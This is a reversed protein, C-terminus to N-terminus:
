NVIMAEIEIQGMVKAVSIRHHGDRVYYDDGAQVLEVPPLAIGQRRAAAIGVWREQLHSKLPLFGADFDESRGESGSIRSLPIQVTRTSLHGNSDFSRRELSKLSSSRGFLRDAFRGRRAVALAKEFRKAAIQRANQAAERGTGFHELTILNLRADM